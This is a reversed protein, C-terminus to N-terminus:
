VMKIDQVIIGKKACEEYVTDIAKLEDDASVMIIKKSDDSATVEVNYLKM